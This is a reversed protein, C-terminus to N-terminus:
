DPSRALKVWCKGSVQHATDAEAVLEEMAVAGRGAGRDDGAEGLTVEMELAVAVQGPSKSLVEMIMTVVAGGEVAVQGLSKSLIETTMTVVEGGTAVAQDLSRSQAIMTMTPAVQDLNRSIDEEETATMMKGNAAEVLGMM